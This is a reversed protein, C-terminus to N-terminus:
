ERDRHVAIVSATLGGIALGAGITILGVSALNKFICGETDCDPTRLAAGVVLLGTGSAAVAASAALCGSQMLALALLGATLRATLSRDSWSWSIKRM